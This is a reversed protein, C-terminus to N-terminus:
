NDQDPLWGVIYICIHIQAFEPLYQFVPLGPTSYDVLDWIQVRDLTTM